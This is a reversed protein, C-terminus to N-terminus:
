ALDTNAVAYIGPLNRLYEKYDMGMGFVYRDEVTLGVFNPRYTCTRPKLKEVLVASHVSTAGESQCYQVVLELTTGEDFIDDVILVNEGALPWRPRAIWELTGGQTTSQYRTAHLYSLRLHFDLFSLLMATPFLGGNMISLVLPDKDALVNRINLAMNAVAQQIRENSHLLDARALIGKIHDPTQKIM